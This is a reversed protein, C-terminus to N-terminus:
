AVGRCSSLISAHAVVDLQQAQGILELKARNEAPSKQEVAAIDQLRL